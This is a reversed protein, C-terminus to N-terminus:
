LLFDWLIWLATLSRNGWKEKLYKTDWMEEMFCAYDTKPDERVSAQNQDLFTISKCIGDM